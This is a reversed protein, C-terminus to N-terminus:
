IKDGQVMSVSATINAAVLSHVNLSVAYGIFGVLLQAIKLLKISLRFEEVVCRYCDPM